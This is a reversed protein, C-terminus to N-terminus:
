RWTRTMPLDRHPTYKPGHSLNQAVVGQTSHGEQRRAAQDGQRRGTSRGRHAAPRQARRQREPWGSAAAHRLSQGGPVLVADPVRVGPRLGRARQARRLVEVDQDFDLEELTTERSIDGRDRLKLIQGIIDSTFDLTIRKPTFALSPSSTSACGRQAGHDARFVHKEISRLIMHRRNELGKAVVRSMESVGTGSSNGGQVVPAYSNCRRSFWVPTWFRGGADAPPHPRDASTVIEVNLRHDGVLVPCGRSSAPRSRSTPSRPEAQGPAQRHGQHDRRHLEHQRDAGARDSARLHDKMELIPLAPKLRIPAYREYNARTQSHRFVADKNFLWLREHDVRRARCLGAQRFGTPEYKKEILRMVTDDVIEGRMVQSFAEDEGRDAIYAFRERGFMLNGVPVVKTPDFITIETPVVVPFKKRRTRNGRGPKVDKLEPIEPPM